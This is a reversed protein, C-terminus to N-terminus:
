LILVVLSSVFRKLEKKEKRKQKYSSWIVGMKLLKALFKREKCFCTQLSCIRKALSTKGKHCSLPLFLRACSDALSIQRLTLHDLACM